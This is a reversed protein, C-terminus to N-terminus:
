PPQDNQAADIRRPLSIGGSQAVLPAKGDDREVTVRLVKRTGHPTAITAGHRDWVQQVSIRLKNSLTKALSTEMVWKLRHFTHRNYALQYYEVVGRYEQQYHSVISYPPDHEMEPRHVPKSRRLYPTCRTRM